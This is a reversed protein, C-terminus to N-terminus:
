QTMQTETKNPCDALQV